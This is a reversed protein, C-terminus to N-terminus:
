PNFRVPRTHVYVKKVGAEGSRYAWAGRNHIDLARDQGFAKVADYGQQVFAPVPIRGAVADRAIGAGAGAPGLHEPHRWAWQAADSVVNVIAKLDSLAGSLGSDALWDTPEPRTYNVEPGPAAFSRTVHRVSGSPQAGLSDAVRDGQIVLPAPGQWTYQPGGTWVGTTTAAPTRRLPPAQLMAGVPM